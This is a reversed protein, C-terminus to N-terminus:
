SDGRTLRKKQKRAYMSVGFPIMGFWRTSWSPQKERRERRAERREIKPTDMYRVMRQTLFKIYEQSSM